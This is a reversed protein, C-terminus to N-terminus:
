KGIYSKCCREFIFLGQSLEILKLYQWINYQSLPQHSKVTVPFQFNCIKFPALNDFYLKKLVCHSSKGLQTCKPTDRFVHYSGPVHVNNCHFNPQICNKFFATRLRQGHCKHGFQNSFSIQCDLSSTSPLTIFHSIQEPPHQHRRRCSFIRLIVEVYLVSIVEGVCVLVM